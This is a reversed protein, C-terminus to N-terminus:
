RRWGGAGVAAQPYTPPARGSKARAVKGRGGAVWSIVSFSSFHTARSPLVLSPLSSPRTSGPLRRRAAGAFSPRPATQAVVTPTGLLAPTAQGECRFASSCQTGLSRGPRHTQTASPVGGGGGRAARRIPERWSPGAEGQRPRGPRTGGKWPVTTHYTSGGASETISLNRTGGQGGPREGEVAPGLGIPLVSGRRAVVLLRGRRGCTAM